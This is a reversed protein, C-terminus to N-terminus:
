QEKGVRGWEGRKGTAGGGPGGLRGTGWDGRGTAESWLDKAGLHRGMQPMYDM